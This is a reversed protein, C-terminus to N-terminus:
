QPCSLKVSDDTENFSKSAKASKKDDKYVGCLYHLFYHRM